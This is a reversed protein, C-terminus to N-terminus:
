VKYYEKKEGNNSEHYFARIKIGIEMASKEVVQKFDDDFRLCYGCGGKTLIHPTQIVSSDIELEHLKRKLRNASTSSAVSALM